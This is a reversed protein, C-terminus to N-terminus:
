YGGHHRGYGGASPAVAPVYGTTPVAPYGGPMGSSTHAAGSPPAYTIYLAYIKEKEKAKAKRKAEKERRARRKEEKAERRRRAIVVPDFDPQHRYAAANRALYEELESEDDEEDEESGSNDSDDEPLGNDITGVRPGSRRQRGKYLVVEVGRPFFFSTNWLDVLDAALTTRRPPQGSRNDSPVPLRGSWALRLDTMLRLWDEPYVDHSKLVVPMRPLHSALVFEEMDQIKTTNFPAYSLNPSVHRSFGEPPLLQQGADPLMGGPVHPSAAGIQSPPFRPSHSGFKGAPDSYPQGYPPVGGPPGPMPSSARSRPTIPHGELIHGRPYVQPQGGSAGYPATPTVAPDGGRASSSYASGPYSPNGAPPFDAARGPNPSYKAGPPVFPLETAGGPNPSYKGGSAAYGPATPVYPSGYPSAGGQPGYASGYQGPREDGTNTSYKRPRGPGSIKRERNLDMDDFQRNLADYGGVNSHKRERGYPHGGAGPAGYPSNAPEAYHQYPRQAASRDAAQSPFAVLDAPPGANFSKRREREYERAKEENRHEQQQRLRKAAEKEERKRRKDEEHQWEKLKDKDNNGRSWAFDASAPQAGQPLIHTAEAPVWQIGSVIGTPTQYSAAVAKFTHYLIRGDPGTSTTYTVSGPVIDGSAPPQPQAVQPSYLQTPPQPSYGRQPPPQPSYARPPAQGYPSPARPPVQGYPSPARPPAQGYPSPARPPVQGYPSPARPPPQGYPSPARYM